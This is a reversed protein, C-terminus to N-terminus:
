TPPALPRRSRQLAADIEAQRERVLADFAEDPLPRDGIFRIGGKTADFGDLTALVSATVASSFPYVTCGTAAAVVAVLPRGRYRYAAVGYSRAEEVLPVLDPVRALLRGVLARQPEDLGAVYDTVDGM